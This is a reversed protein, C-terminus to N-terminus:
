LKAKNESGDRLEYGGDDAVVYHTGKELGLWDRLVKEGGVGPVLGKAEFGGGEIGEGQGKENTHMALGPSLSLDVVPRMKHGRKKMEDFGLVPTVCADTGDFVAEWEARTKEKFRETFIRRLGDWNKRNMREQVLEDGVGLGRVFADYFKEELCGVAVFGGDKTEYTDYWPCGGDLVNEGRAANWMPGQVAFRPMSALYAAGDVMNAEVVQGQGSVGRHILALLVGVFCTMGGGAFDGILNAPAYPKSDKRGLMALVGALAIYNIDHGAM